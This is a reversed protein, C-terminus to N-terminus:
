QQPVRGKRVVELVDNGLGFLLDLQVVTKQVRRSHDEELRGYEELIRTRSSLGVVLSSDVSCLVGARGVAKQRTRRNVAHFLPQLREVGLSDLILDAREVQVMAGRTGASVALGVELDCVM